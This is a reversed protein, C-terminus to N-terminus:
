ESREAAGAAPGLGDDVSAQESSLALGAGAAVLTILSAFDLDRCGDGVGAQVIQRVLAAVPMPVALEHAVELGLVFDKLLLETTFTPAFDLNVIAPSKYRTFTSGMVSGNLFSLFDKRRVGGKEALVTIEALSQSVVGLLLNHCLKVLRAVEGEGVYTVGAGIAELYGRVRDFADRPGSVAVTLRGSSVVRPNGSVPAALFACGRAEALRRADASAEPSVTSCDVVVEPVREGRLLGDPGGLVELLDTSGAVAVFVLEREALEGVTGAAKAGAAVLPEVKSRTRNYVALDHGAAVLRAAMASGMRGAGIWGIRGGGAM